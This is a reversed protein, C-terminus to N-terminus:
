QFANKNPNRDPRVPLVYACTDTKMVSKDNSRFLPDFGVPMYNANIYDSGEEDDETPLLKVRSHDDPLFWIDKKVKSCKFLLKLSLHFILKASDNGYQIPIYWLCNRLLYFKCALINTYRNKVRNQPMEAVEWEMRPSM